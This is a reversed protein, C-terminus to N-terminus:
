TEEMLLVSQWSIVSINNFTANFVMFRVLLGLVYVHINIILATKYTRISLLCLVSVKLTYMYATSNKNMGVPWWPLVNRITMQGQLNTNTSVTTGEGDLIEVVVSVFNPPGGGIIKYDIIGVFYFYNYFVV